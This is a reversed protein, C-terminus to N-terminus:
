FTAIVRFIIENERLTAQGFIILSFVTIDLICFGFREQEPAGPPCQSFVHAWLLNGLAISALQALYGRQVPIERQTFSYGYCYIGLLKNTPDSSSM